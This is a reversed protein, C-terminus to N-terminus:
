LYGNKDGEADNWCNIMHQIVCEDEVLGIVTSYDKNKVQQIVKDLLSIALDNNELMTMYHCFVMKKDCFTTLNLRKGEQGMGVIQDPSEILVFPTDVMASLRTSATWFQITFELQKILALTNELDRAEQMSSFDLIDDVPCPIISQKEGLWVPNYGNKKLLDILKVYFEPQLNRGYCKRGRAIIGVSNPKLLSKAFDIKEECPIPIKKVYKKWYSTNSLVSSILNDSGCAYCYDANTEWDAGVYNCKKCRYSLVMDGMVSSSYLMGFQLLQAEIRNLNKSENMFARSYERLWQFSEDLEWYEDVLHKYLYDRGYWGIAIKYHGPYKKNIQPICYMPIIPECGFESFCSIIIVDERSSPRVRETFKFINFKIEDISKEKDIDYELKDPIIVRVM